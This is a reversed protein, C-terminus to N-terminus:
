QEMERHAMDRALEDMKHQNNRRAQRKSAKKRQNQSSMWAKYSSTHRQDRMQRDIEEREDIERLHAIREAEELKKSMLWVDM